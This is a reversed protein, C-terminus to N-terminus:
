YVFFEPVPEPAQRARMAALVVAQVPTIDALSHRGSFVWGEGVPRPVALRVADSLDAADLHVVGGNEIENLLASHAGVVEPTSCEYIDIGATRLHDLVGATPSKPDVVIPRATDAQAHRCAEVVWATGAEHRAVEIQLAGDSRVAAFGLSASRQDPGVSLSAWGPDTLPASRGRRAQWAERRVKAWGSTGAMNWNFFFRATDDWENSTDRADAVLRPLDAWWSDGYAVRLAALLVGDPAELNVPVGDIERPAEVEDAFIGPSGLRVADYSSEAVSKAGIVFSNTTEFSTGGMKAVNRRITKALAVGGNSPVMLHSEDLVGYTLPQGERSGAAATVPEMKAGPRDRLYCRTLGADVRLADAAKGDNETLLYHVVSWTNDTQDESVAGVQVWPLPDNETGWPRGVPEGNADWGAFRVPGAFEAICKAAEVPSKGWGKARRSYGRRYVRRGRTDLRYWEVLNMAQEDTFILPSSADRPSPLFDGWWDLLAWGLSPFDDPHRPGRWPM